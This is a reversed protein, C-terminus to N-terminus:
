GLQRVMYTQTGFRSIIYEKFHEIDKFADGPPVHEGWDSILNTIILDAARYSPQQLQAILGSDDAYIYLHTPDTVEIGTLAWLQAM